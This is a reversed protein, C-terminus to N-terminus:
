ADDDHDDDGDDLKGMIWFFGLLIFLSLVVITFTTGPFLWVTVSLFLLTILAIGIENTKM